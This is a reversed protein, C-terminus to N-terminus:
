LVTEKIEMVMHMKAVTPWKVIERRCTRTTGVERNVMRLNALQGSENMHSMIIRGCKKSFAHLLHEIIDLQFRWELRQGSLGEAVLSGIYLRIGTSVNSHTAKPGITAICEKICPHKIGLCWAILGFAELREVPLKLRILLTLVTFAYIGDFM